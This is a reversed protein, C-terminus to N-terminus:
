AWPQIETVHLWVDEGALLKPCIEDYVARYAAESSGISFEGNTDILPVEGVGICGKTQSTRNLIHIYISIFDPVDEVHIMGKHWDGFRERYRYNMMEPDDMGDTRLSLKYKGTPICTEGYVKTLRREDELTFALRTQGGNLRVFHGLTSDPALGYRVVMYDTM